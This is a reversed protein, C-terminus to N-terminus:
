QVALWFKEDNLVRNNQYFSSLSGGVSGNEKNPVHGITCRRGSTNNVYTVTYRGNAPM